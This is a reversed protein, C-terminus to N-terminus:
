KKRNVGALGLLGIGFLVMTAPEPVPASSTTINFVLLPNQEGSVRGSARMDITISDSTFSYGSTITGLFGINSDLTLGTITDDFDSFVYDGFGGWSGLDSNMSITLTSPLYTISTISSDAFDFNLEGGVGTFEIGGGIEATDPGLSIGTAIITDGMLSANAMGVFTILLFGVLLVGIKRM